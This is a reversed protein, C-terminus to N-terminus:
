EPTSFIFTNEQMYVHAYMYQVHLACVCVCVRQGLTGIFPSSSYMYM